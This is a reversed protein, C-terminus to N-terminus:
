AILQIVVDAIGKAKAALLATGTGEGDVHLITFM